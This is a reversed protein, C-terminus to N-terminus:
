GAGSRADAEAELLALHEEELADDAVAELAVRVREDASARAARRAQTKAREPDTPGLALAAGVRRETPARPDLVIRVLDEPDVRQTRFDSTPRALAALDRRWTALDRGARELEALDRAPETSARMADEIRQVMVEVASETQGIVPLDVVNGDHLVLGVTTFPLLGREVSRIDRYAVFRAGLGRIRVGDVGIVVRRNGFQRFALGLVLMSIAMLWAAWASRGVLTTLLGGVFLGVFGGLFSWTGRGIQGRLPRVLTRRAADLELAEVFREALRETEFTAVVRAGDHTVLTAKAGETWGMSLERLRVTTPEDPTGIVLDDGDVLLQTRDVTRPPVASWLLTIALIAVGISVVVPSAGASSVVAGAITVAAGVVGAV